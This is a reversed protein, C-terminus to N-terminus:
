AVRREYALIAGVAAGIPIVFVALQAWWSRLLTNSYVLLLLMTVGVAVLLAKGAFRNVSYWIDERSETRETRVGYIPNPPILKLVLPVSITGILVCAILLFVTIMM